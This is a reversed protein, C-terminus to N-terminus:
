KKKGFSKVKPQDERKGFLAEFDDYESEDSVKLDIDNKAIFEKFEELREPQLLYHSDSVRISNLKNLMSLCATNDEKVEGLIFERYNYSDLLEKLALSGIGKNRYEKLLAMDLFYLGNKRERLLYLFGVDRKDEVILCSIDSSVLRDSKGVFEDEVAEDQIRTMINLIRSFIRENSGDLLKM